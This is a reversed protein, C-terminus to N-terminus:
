SLRDLVIENFDQRNSARDSFLKQIYVLVSAQGLTKKLKEYERINVKKTSDKIEIKGNVLNSGNIFYC